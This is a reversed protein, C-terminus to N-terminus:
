VACPFGRGHVNGIRLRRVPLESMAVGSALDHLTHFSYGCSVAHALIERFANLHIGGEVEAHVPLVFPDSEQAHSSLAAKVGQVGVEEICPLNSPIEPLGNEAFIFPRPARTCSLYRFGLEAALSLGREDVRWGPAGFSEPRKGVLSEYADMMKAFWRRRMDMSMFPLWDQWLRHDWAHCAVDHGEEALSRVQEPFGLAILPAPLLTGYLLTRKGYLAPANTRLMKILFRPRLLQLVALGSRDPGFSLYFSGKLSFEGLVERIRPLGTKMGQYTDIDIKLALLPM